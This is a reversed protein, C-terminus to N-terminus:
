FRFRPSHYGAYERLAPRQSKLCLLNLMLSCCTSRLHLRFANDAVNSVLMVMPLSVRAVNLTLAEVDIGDPSSDVHCIGDFGGAGLGFWVTACSIIDNPGLWCLAVVLLASFPLTTADDSLVTPLVLKMREDDGAVVGEPGLVAKGVTVVAVGVAGAGEAADDRTVGDGLRGSFFRRFGNRDSDCDESLASWGAASITFNASLARIYPSSAYLATPSM